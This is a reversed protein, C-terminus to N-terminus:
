GRLRFQVPMAVQVPVPTGRQMGPKFRQKMVAEVASKDLVEAVSKIIRPNQPNGEADVVIQVVVTGELGAKRALSPYNADSLLQSIGGILEPMQEVVIFIEPEVEEEEEPPPPPATQTLFDEIDLTVDLDLDDDELIEDDAVEVPVPPRPPPPPTVQHVTQTIEEIHVLEQDAFAIDLTSGSQFPIQFFGTVVFLALGLGVQVTLGYSRQKNQFRKSREEFSHELHDANFAPDGAHDERSFRFASSYGPLFNGVLFSKRM